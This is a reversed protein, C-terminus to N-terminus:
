PGLDVMRPHGASGVGGPRPCAWPTLPYTGPGHRRQLLVEYAGGAPRREVTVPAEGHEHDDAVVGHAEHELGVVEDVGVM